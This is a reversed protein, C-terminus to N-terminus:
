SSCLIFRGRSGPSLHAPLSSCPLAPSGWVALLLLSLSGLVRGEQAPLLSCTALLRWDAHVPLRSPPLLLTCPHRSESAVSGLARGCPQAM